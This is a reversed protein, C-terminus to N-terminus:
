RSAIVIELHENQVIVFQLNRWGVFHLAILEIVGVYYSCMKYKLCKGVDIVLIVDM